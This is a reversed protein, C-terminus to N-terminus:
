ALLLHEAEVQEKCSDSPCRRCRGGRATRSCLAFAALAFVVSLSVFAVAMRLSGGAATAVSAVEYLRMPAPTWSGSVEVDCFTPESAAPWDSPPLREGVCESRLGRHTSSDVQVWSYDRYEEEQGADSYSGDGGEYGEEYEGDEEAEAEAQNNSPHRLLKRVWDVLRVDDGDGGPAAQTERFAPDQGHAGSATIHYFDEAPTFCHQQGNVLFSVYNEHRAFLRLRDNVASLYGTGNSFDPPVGSGMAVAQHFMMQTADAKSNIQAFTVHPFSTMADMFMDHVSLNGANCSDQMKGSFLPTTCVGNDLLLKQQTHGAFLDVYSDALVVAKKYRFRALLEKSWMQAALSGASCGGIVLSKLHKQHFNEEAWSIASRANAFGRQVIGGYPRATNGVHLDGSCYIVQVLTHHRFPNKPNTRNYIGKTPTATVDTICMTKSMTSFENFCAGGGQFTIHLKKKSGPFVRFAYLKNSNSICRSEGGPFILTATDRKLHKLSCRQSPTMSCTERYNSSPRSMFFPSGGEDNSGEAAAQQLEEVTAALGVPKFQQADGFCSSVGILVLFLYCPLPSKVM